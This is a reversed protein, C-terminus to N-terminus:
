VYLLSFLSDGTWSSNILSCQKMIEGEVPTRTWLFGESKEPACFDTMLLLLTDYSHSVSSLILTSTINGTIIKPGYIFILLLIHLLFLKFCFFTHPLSLSLASPFPFINGQLPFCVIGIETVLVDFTEQLM